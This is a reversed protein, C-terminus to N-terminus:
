ASSDDGATAMAGAAKAAALWRRRILGSFPGVVRWYRGFARRAREDTACIRTETALLSSGGELPTARLDVAITVEGPRAEAFPRIRGRLTWPRGSGVVVLETPSRRIVTLGLAVLLEEVTGRTRLGRLRFLAPVVRGPAAQSALFTALAVEPSADVVRSHVTHHDYEGLIDDLARM